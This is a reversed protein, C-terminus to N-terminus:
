LNHMYLFEQYFADIEKEWEFVYFPADEPLKGNVMYSEVIKAKWQLEGPLVPM